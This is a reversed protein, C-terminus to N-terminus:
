FTVVRDHGVGLNAFGDPGVFGTIRGDFDQESVECAGARPLASEM